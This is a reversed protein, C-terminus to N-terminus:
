VFSRIASRAEPKYERYEKHSTCFSLGPQGALRRPPDPPMSGLSNKLKLPEIDLNRKAGEGVCVFM